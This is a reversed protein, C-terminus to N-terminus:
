KNTCSTSNSAYDSMGMSLNVASMSSSAIQSNITAVATSAEVSFAVDSKSKEVYLNANNVYTQTKQSAYDIDAKLSNLSVDLRKLENFAAVNYSKAQSDFTKVNLELKSLESQVKANYENLQASFAKINGDNVDIAITKELRAIEVETKYADVRESFAKIEASYADIKTKEADIETKYVDYEAIQAQVLTGYSSVEIGYAELKTKDMELLLNVSQVQSNYLDIQVKLANNQAIFLDIAQQNLTGLLAQAELEVRYIDVKVQEAMLLSQYVQAETSYLQLEANFLTVKAEYLTISAQFSYKAADLMRTLQNQYWEGLMNELAIGQQVAFRLNEIEHQAQKEAIDRSITNTANLVAQQAEAIRAVQTGTPLSFGKNAWADTIEQALKTGTIDERERAKDWLANWVADPIGVGGALMRSVEGQVQALIASSYDDESWTFSDGPPILTDANPPIADFVPLNTDPSDPLVITYFDPDPVDKIIPLDPLPYSGLPPADDPQKPKTIVPKDPFNPVVKTVDYEPAPGVDIAPDIQDVQLSNVNYDPITSNYSFIPVDEPPNYRLTDQWGELEGFASGNFDVANFRSLNILANQTDRLTKKTTNEFSTIQNPMEDSAGTTRLACESNSSDTSAINNIAM